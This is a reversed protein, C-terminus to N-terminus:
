KQFFNSLSKISKPNFNINKILYNKIEKEYFYPLIIIKKIKKKRINEGDLIPNPFSDIYKKQKQSDGDFIFINKKNFNIQSFIVSVSSTAGYLGLNFNKKEEKYLWKEIKKVCSFFKRFYNIDQKKKMNKVFSIKSNKKRKEKFGLGFLNGYKDSFVKVKSFKNRILYHKLNSKTFYSIHEHNVLTPDGNSILKTFDPLCIFIMGGYNLENYSKQIFLNPKFEHELVANSTIIDFKKKYKVDHYFKKLITIDKINNAKSPEIGFVDSKKEKFLKLLFGSGCGIELIKKGEVDKKYNKLILRLLRHGHKRRHTSNEMSSSNTLNSSYRRTLFKKLKESIDQKLLGDDESTTLNFDFNINKFTKKKKLEFVPVKSIKM